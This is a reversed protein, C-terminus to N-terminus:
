ASSNKAGSQRRQYFFIYVYNPAIIWKSGNYLILKPDKSSLFLLSVIKEPFFINGINIIIINTGCVTMFHDTFTGMNHNHYLIANLELWLTTIVSGYYPNCMLM